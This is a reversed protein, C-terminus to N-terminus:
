KTSVKLAQAMQVNLDPMPIELELKISGQMLDVDTRTIVLTRIKDYLVATLTPPLNRLTLTDDAKVFFLPFPSGYKDFVRDLDVRARPIPDTQLALVSAAVQTAQTANTSEVNIAKRRTIQFKTVSTADTSVATRLNRKNSPDKYVGYVSNYLNTLTRVVELSTIDTYWANGSGRPRVILTQSNYVLASWQRPTPQNDSKAILQNIIETPYQDEYIAQDLDVAQSQVQTVDSSVQTPNLTNLMAVCDKMIEDPAIFHATVTSAIVHAFAFVATFTTATIATVIVSEGVTISGQDIFLRQGVYIRVMSAPTVTRTGAAINTGLTTSIRNTTSAVYRLNTVKIYNAGTEGVPTVNGGSANFIVLFFQASTAGTTINYSTRALAGTGARTIDNAVTVNSANQTQLFFTLTTPLNFELDFSVGRINTSGLHPMQIHFGGSDLAALVAGKVVACYLQNTTDYNFKQTATIIAGFNESTADDIKTGSWLATYPADNFAVWGGFATIKLGVATNAFQTPDELRGEWVRYSGWSVKLKLPGLQQYYLFAELFPLQLETECSEHGHPNTRVHCSKVRTSWDALLVDALTYIALQMRM